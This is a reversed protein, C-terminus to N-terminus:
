PAGEPEESINRPLDKQVNDSKQCRTDVVICEAPAGLVNNWQCRDGSSLVAAVPWRFWCAERVQGGFRRLAITVILDDKTATKDVTAQSGPSRGIAPYLGLAVAHAGFDQNM